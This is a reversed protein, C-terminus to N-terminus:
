SESVTELYFSRHRSQPNRRENNSITSFTPSPTVNDLKTTSLSQKNASIYVPKSAMLASTVGIYGILLPFAIISAKIMLIRPTIHIHTDAYTALIRDLMLVSLFLCKSQFDGFCDISYPFFSSQSKRM